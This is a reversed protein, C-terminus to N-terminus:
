PKRLGIRTAIEYIKKYEEEWMKKQESPTKYDIIGWIQDVKPKTNRVAKEIAPVLISKAEEPIGAPAYLGFGAVPLGQKYGLETITPIEPFAPMKINMLLIRMKGADVHSKVRVLAQFTAEVHGGLVATIVSEGGEFPVHNFQAGTNAQIMELFFHPLSGVGMTSVRVKRPEKKAHDILERFTKWPSDGRVTFANPFLFHLGLPEVDKSPDYHVIEPNLIPAVILASSFDGYLLTYGDKKARVVADTGLVTGAGPRNNPIIKTGLTKELETGIMRAGLDMSSGAVNPIVLQIPRDPYRQALSAPPALTGLALVLLVAFFILHGSKM